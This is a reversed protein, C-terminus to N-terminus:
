HINTGYVYLQKGGRLRKPRPAVCTLIKGPRKTCSIFVFPGGATLLKFDISDLFRFGCRRAFAFRYTHATSLYM